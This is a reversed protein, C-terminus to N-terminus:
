PPRTRALAYFVAGAVFTAIGAVLVVNSARTIATTVEGLSLGVFVLMLVVGLAMLGM